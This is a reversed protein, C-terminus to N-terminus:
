LGRRWCTTSINLIPPTKGRSGCTKVTHVPVADCEYWETHWVLDTFLVKFIQCINWNFLFILAGAHMCECQESNHVYLNTNNKGWRCFVIHLFNTHRIRCSMLFYLQMEKSLGITSKLVSSDFAFTLTLVLQVRATFQLRHRLIHYPSAPSPTMTNAM